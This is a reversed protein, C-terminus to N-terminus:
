EESQTREVRCPDTGDGTFCLDPKLLGGRTLTGPIGGTYITTSPNGTDIDDARHILHTKIRSLRGAGGQREV